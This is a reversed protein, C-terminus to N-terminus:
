FLYKSGFLSSSMWTDAPVQRIEGIRLVVAAVTCCFFDGSSPLSVVLQQDKMKFSYKEIANISSITSIM